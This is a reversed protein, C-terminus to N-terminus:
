NGYLFRNLEEELDAAIGPFDAAVNNIEKPDTKWNYLERENTGMEWLLKWGDHRRISRSLKYNRSYATIEPARGHGLASALSVGGLETSNEPAQFGMLEILTPFVDAIRLQTEVVVTKKLHKPVRVVLPPSIEDDYCKAIGHELFGREMFGEGHDGMFVVVTKDEVGLRRLHNLYEGFEQDVDVINADYLNKLLALDTEYSRSSKWPLLVEPQPASYVRQPHHLTLSPFIFELTERYIQRLFARQYKNLPQVLSLKGDGELKIIRNSTIFSREIDAVFQWNFRTSITDGIVMDGENFHSGPGFLVRSIQSHPDRTLDNLARVISDKDRLTLQSGSEVRALRRALRPPLASSILAAPSDGTAKLNKLFADWLVVDNVPLETRRVGFAQFELIAPFKETDVPDKVLKIEDIDALLKRYRKKAAGKLQRGRRRYLDYPYHLHCLHVYSIFPHSADDPLKQNLYSYGHRKLSRVFPYDEIPPPDWENWGTGLYFSRDSPVARFLEEIVPPTFSAPSILNNFVYSERAFLDINPTSINSYGYLPLYSKSMCNVVVILLNQTELVDPKRSLSTESSFSLSPFLILTLGLITGVMRSFSKHFLAPMELKLKYVVMLIRKELSCDSKVFNMDTFKITM